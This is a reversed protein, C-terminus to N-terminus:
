QAIAAAVAQGFDAVSSFLQHRLPMILRLSVDSGVLLVEGGVFALLISVLRPRDRDDLLTPTRFITLRRDSTRLTPNSSLTIVSM